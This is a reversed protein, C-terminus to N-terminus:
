KKIYKFRLLTAPTGEAENSVLLDGNSFFTLGEPKTFTKSDLVSFGIIKGSADFIALTRDIASVIYISRTVPHVAVSSPLFRFLSRMGEGKKKPAEPLMIGQQKAYAALEAVDIEIAAKAFLKKVKLDFAYVVRKDKLEKGKGAKSKAAILLRNGAEDYCLGENNMTGINLPYTKKVPNASRYNEVEVLLGDSRLIYMTKGVVTIGEYDGDTSFPIQEKIKKNELDYIFIIGKEDQVCGIDSKSIDTIGSIENLAAPLTHTDDPHGLDYHGKIDALTDKEPSPLVFAAALVAIAAPILVISFKKMM